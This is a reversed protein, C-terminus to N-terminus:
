VKEIRGFAEAPTRAGIAFLAVRLEHLFNLLWEVVAEPGKLAPELLPRAVAVM